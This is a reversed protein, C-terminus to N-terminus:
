VPSQRVGALKETVQRVGPLLLFNGILPIQRLFSLIVPFFDGFLNLVGFSEFIMGTVPWKIFVLFIGFVFCATGGLKQRRAFFNKTQQPGILLLIGSVFLINGLALLPADFFLMIGLFFFFLGFSTLGVGIKQTDTLWM